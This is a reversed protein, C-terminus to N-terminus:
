QCGAPRQSQQQLTQLWHELNWRNVAMAGERAKRAKAALIDKDLAAVRAIATAASDDQGMRFLGPALQQWENIGCQASVLVPRSRAMAEMAITGFSEVHSPLVLLDSADIETLMAERGLWGLYQLNPLSAAAAEVEARCPGDGAIAFQLHPLAGAAEIVAPLNKEAALRGAYLVRKVESVPPALPTSIFMKPIPTGMLEVPKRSRERAISVMEDSNALIVGAQRFLYRNLVEFYSVTLYGFWRSWYLHMIKEFHTHFGVVLGCGRQRALRAGLLGFPGPTPVVIVHPDLAAIRQRIQRPSPLCVQQTSDGPLPFSMAARTNEEGPCILDIQALEDGLLGCLDHYYAGVGNRQAWADSIVAVRMQGTAPTTRPRPDVAPYFANKMLM